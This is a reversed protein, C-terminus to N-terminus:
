QVASAGLWAQTFRSPDIAQLMQRTRWGTPRPAPKAKGIVVTGGIVMPLLAQRRLWWWWWRGELHLWRRRM